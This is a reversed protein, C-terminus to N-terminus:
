DVTWQQRRPANMGRGASQKSDGVMRGEMLQFDVGQLIHLYGRPVMLNANLFSFEFKHVV